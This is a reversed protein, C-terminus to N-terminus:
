MTYQQCITGTYRPTRWVATRQSHEARYVRVTGRISTLTDHLTRGFTIEHYLSVPTASVTFPTHKVYMTVSGIFQGASYGAVIKNVPPWQAHREIYM